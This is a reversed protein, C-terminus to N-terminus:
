EPNKKAVRVTVSGCDVFYMLAQYSASNVCPEIHLLQFGPLIPLALDALRNEFAVRDDDTERTFEVFLASEAVLFQFEGDFFGFQEHVFNEYDGHTQFFAVHGFGQPVEVAHIQEHLSPILPQDPRQLIQINLCIIAM